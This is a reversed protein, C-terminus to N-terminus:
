LRDNFDGEVVAIIDEEQYIVLDEHTQTKPLKVAGYEPLIVFQGVQIHPKIVQGNDNVKGPGVDVIKGINSSLKSDPLLIGSSSKKPPVYRQVLVRGFLPKINKLIPQM